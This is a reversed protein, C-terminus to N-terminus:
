PCWSTYGYVCFRCNRRNKMAHGLEISRIATKLRTMARSASKPGVSVPVLEIASGAKRPERKCLVFGCRVNTPDIGLKQCTFHKYLMLQLQKDFSRKREAPWGWSTSKWDLVWYIWEGPTRKNPKKNPFRLVVDCFGKFWRQDLGPIKEFLKVEAAVLQWGPFENDLWPRAESVIVGIGEALAEIDPLDGQSRTIEGLRESFRQVIERTTPIYGTLLNRELFSHIVNGYLSWISVDDPGVKEVHKLKHRFSCEYWDNIESYSVHFKNTPLVNDLVVPLRVQGPGPSSQVVSPPTFPVPPVEEPTGPSLIAALDLGFVEELQKV